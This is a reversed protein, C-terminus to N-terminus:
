DLHINNSSYHWGHAGCLPKNKSGKQFSETGVGQLSEDTEGDELSESNIVLCIAVNLLGSSNFASYM